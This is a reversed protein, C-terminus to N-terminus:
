DETGNLGIHESIPEADEFLTVDEHAARGYGMISQSQYLKFETNAEFGNDTDLVTGINGVVLQYKAM